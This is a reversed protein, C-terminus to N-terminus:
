AFCSIAVWHVALIAACSGNKCYIGFIVFCAESLASSDVGNAFCWSQRGYHWVMTGWGSFCSCGLCFPYKRPAASYPELHCGWDWASLSSIVQEVLSVLSLLGDMCRARSAEMATELDALFLASMIEGTDEQLKSVQMDHVSMSLRKHRKTLFENFNGEIVLLAHALPDAVQLDM